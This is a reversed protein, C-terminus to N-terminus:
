AVGSEAPAVADLAAAKFAAFRGGAIADRVGQM